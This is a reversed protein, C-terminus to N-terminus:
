SPRKMSKRSGSPPSATPKAAGAQAFLGDILESRSIIGDGDKDLSAIVEEVTLKGDGDADFGRLVDSTTAGGLTASGLEVTPDIHEKSHGHLNSASHAEEIDMDLSVQDVTIPMTGGGVFLTLATPLRLCDGCEKSRQGAPGCFVYGLSHLVERCGFWIGHRINLVVGWLSGADLKTKDYNLTCHLYICNVAEKGNRPLLGGLLRNDDLRIWPNEKSRLRLNEKPVDDALGYKVLHEKLDGITAHTGSHISFVGQCSVLVLPAKKSPPTKLVLPYKQLAIFNSEVREDEDSSSEAGERRGGAEIAFLNKVREFNNLILNRGQTVMGPGVKKRLESELKETAMAIRFSLVTRRVLEKRTRAINFSLFPAVIGVGLVFFFPYVIRPIGLWLAWKLDPPAWWYTDWTALNGRSDFKSVLRIDCCPNVGRVMYGGVSEVYTWNEDAAAANKLETCYGEDKFEEYIEQVTKDPFDFCGMEKRRDFSGLADIAGMQAALLTHNNIAWVADSPDVFEGWQDVQIIMSNYTARLDIMMMMGMTAYNALRGSLAINTGLFSLRLPNEFTPFEWDQMVTVSDMFFTIAYITARGLQKRGALTYWVNFITDTVTGSNIEVEQKKIQLTRSYQWVFTYGFIMGGVLVVLTFVIRFRGGFSESYLERFDYKYGRLMFKTTDQYQSTDQLILDLILVVNLIDLFFVWTGICNAFTRWSMNTGITLYKTQAQGYGTQNAPWLEPDPPTEGQLMLVRNWGQAVVVFTLCLLMLTFIIGPLGQLFFSSRGRKTQRLAFPVKLAFWVCCFCLFLKLLRGGLPDLLPQNNWLILNLAEGVYGMQFEVESHDVPDAAHMFNDAVMIYIPVLMRSIPHRWIQLFKGLLRQPTFGMTGTRLSNLIEELREKSHFKFQKKRRSSRIGAM